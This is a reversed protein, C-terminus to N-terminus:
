EADKVNRTSMAKSRAGSTKKVAPKEPADVVKARTVGTEPTYSAHATFSGPGAVVAHKHVNGAAAAATKAAVPAPAQDGRNYEFDSIQETVTM